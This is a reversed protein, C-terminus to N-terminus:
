GAKSQKEGTGKIIGYACDLLRVPSKELRMSAEIMKTYIQTINSSSHRLFLQVEYLQAGQRIARVAATHRLSHPTIRSSKVGSKRMYHTVVDSVTKSSMRRHRHNYSHVIFLPEDDHSTARTGMYEAIAALAYGSVPLVTDKSDCGKGQIAVVMSGNMDRIDGVNIRSIEIERLANFLMLCIIALDRKGVQTSNNVSKLLLDVQADTLPDKKYGKYKKYNRVTNMPNDCYNHQEMWRYFKRLTTLRNDITLTSYGGDKQEQKYRVIHNAFVERQDIASAHCWKFFLVLNRRYLEKSNPAVDQEAIFASILQTITATTRM